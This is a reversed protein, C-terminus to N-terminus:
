LEKESKVYLYMPLYINFEPIFVCRVDCQLEKIFGGGETPPSFEYGNGIQIFSQMLKRGDKSVSNLKGEESYCLKLQLGDIEIKVINEM